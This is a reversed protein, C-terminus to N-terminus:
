APSELLAKALGAPGGKSGLLAGSGKPHVVIAWKKAGGEPAFQVVPVRSGLGGLGLVLRTVALDGVAAQGSDRICM